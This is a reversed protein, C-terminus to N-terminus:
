IKIVNESFSLKIYQVNLCLATGGDSDDLPSILHSFFIALVSKSNFPTAKFLHSSFYVLGM